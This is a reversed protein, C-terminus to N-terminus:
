AHIFIHLTHKTVDGTVYQQWKWSILLHGPRALHIGPSPSLSMSDPCMISKNACAFWSQCPTSRAANLAIREELCRLWTGFGLEVATFRSWPNVGLLYWLLICVGGSSAFGKMDLARWQPVLLSFVAYSPFRPAAVPCCWIRAGAASASIGAHTSPM